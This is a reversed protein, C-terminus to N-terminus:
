KHCAKFGAPCYMPDIMIDDPRIIQGAPSVPCIFGGAKGYSRDVSEGSSCPFFISWYKAEHPPFAARAADAGEKLGLVVRRCFSQALIERAASKIDPGLVDVLVQSSEILVLARVGIRYPGGSFPVFARNDIEGIRVTVLILEPRWHM